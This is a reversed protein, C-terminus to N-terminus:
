RDREVVYDVADLLSDKYRSPNVDQIAKRAERAYAVAQNKAYEFGGHNRIVGVVAAIDETTVGEQSFLEEIVAREGADLHKLAHILPLTVKKEKLDTGVVKGIINSRGTYDFVDDIIQFAM